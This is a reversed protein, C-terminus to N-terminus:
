DLCTDSLLTFVTQSTERQGESLGEKDILRCRETVPLHILVEVPCPPKQNVCMVGGLRQRGLYFLPSLSAHGCICARISFRIRLSYTKSLCVNVCRDTTRYSGSKVAHGGCALNLVVPGSTKHCNESYTPFYHAHLFLIKSTGGQQARRNLQKAYRNNLKVYITEGM